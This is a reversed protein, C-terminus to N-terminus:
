DKFLAKSLKKIDTFNAYKRKVELKMEKHNSFIDQM